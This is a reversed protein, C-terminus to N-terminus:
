PVVLGGLWGLLPVAFGVLRVLLAVAYTVVSAALCGVVLGSLVASRESRGMARDSHFRAAALLTCVVGWLVWVWVPAWILMGVMAILAILSIPVRNDNRDPLGPRGAATDPAGVSESAGPPPPASTPPPAPSAPSATLRRCLELADPRVVPDAALAAEVVPRLPERVDELRPRGALTRQYVAQPTAAGFVHRGTAAFVVTGAWAFVDAAPAVQDGQLLEPAVYGPTGTAGQQTVRTADVTHAIGFDIIVPEGDVLMVNAPKLDRHVCGTAHIASLAEALGRAVRLLEDGSLPGRDAVVDALTRGQVYRTVIYPTGGLDFDVVEAVRNSRVRRMTEVERRLRTRSRPDAALAPHLVKVAVTRGDADLALFVEGMGGAGLRQLLRYPGIHGPLENVPV